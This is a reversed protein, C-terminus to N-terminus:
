YTHKLPSSNLQISIFCKPPSNVSFPQCFLCNNIYVSTDTWNIISVQFNVSGFHNELINSPKNDSSAAYSTDSSFHM